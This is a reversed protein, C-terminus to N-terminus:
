GAPPVAEVSLQVGVVTQEATESVTLFGSWEGEFSITTSPPADPEGAEVIPDAEVLAEEFFDVVEQAPLDVQYTASLQTLAGADLVSGRVAEAGPPLPFDAPWGPPEGVSLEFSGGEGETVVGDGDLDYSFRGDAEPSEFDVIAEDDTQDFELHGGEADIGFGSGTTTTTEDSRDTVDDSTSLLVWVLGGALILAVPVVAGTWRRGGRAM